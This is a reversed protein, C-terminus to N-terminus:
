QDPWRRGSGAEAGVLHEIELLEDVVTGAFAESDRQEGLGDCGGPWGSRRGAGWRTTDRPCPSRKVALHGKDVVHLADGPDREHFVVEGRKFRRRRAHSLLGRRQEATLTKQLGSPSM